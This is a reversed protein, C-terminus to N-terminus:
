EGDPLINRLLNGLKTGESNLGKYLEIGEKTEESLFLGEGPPNKLQEQFDKIIKDKRKCDECELSIEKGKKNLLRVLVGGYTDGIKGEEKIREVLEDPIRIQTSM